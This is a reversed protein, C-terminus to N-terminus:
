DIGPKFKLVSRSIRIESVLVIMECNKRGRNWGSMPKRLSAGIKIYKATHRHSSVQCADGCVFSSMIELYQM